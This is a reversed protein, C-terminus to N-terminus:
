SMLARRQAQTTLGQFPSHKHQLAKFPSGGFGQWSCRLRALMQNQSLSSRPSVRHWVQWSYWHWWKRNARRWVCHSKGAQRTSESSQRCCTLLFAVAHTVNLLKYRVSVSQKKKKKRKAKASRRGLASVSGKKFPEYMHQILSALCISCWCPKSKITWLGQSLLQFIVACNNKCMVQSKVWWQWSCM